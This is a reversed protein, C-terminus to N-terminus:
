LISMGWREARSASNSSGVTLASPNTTARASQPLRAALFRATDLLHSGHALLLYRQRDLKPNGGPRKAFPSEWILPRLNDTMAYRSTSDYYWGKYAQMRGLEERVFRQAFVVGPDFRRNHGVQLVLGSGGVAKRLDEAEGVSVAMPKEVLVHKGAALVKLCLPVHFQDAVGILVAQVASDSLMADCNAFVKEPKHVSAARELLDPASDCIAYLRANRAKQCADFHAAQSIPGAGLVAVNLLDAEKKV